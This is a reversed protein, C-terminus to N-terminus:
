LNLVIYYIYSKKENKSNYGVNIFRKWKKNILIQKSKIFFIQYKWIIM